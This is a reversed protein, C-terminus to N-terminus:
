AAKKFSFGRRRAIHVYRGRDTFRHEVAYGLSELVADAGQVLRHSPIGVILVGGERVCEGTHLLEALEAVERLDPILLVDAPAMEGVWRAHVYSARQYGHQGLWLMAAPGAVGSVHVLSNRTVGARALVRSLAPGDAALSRAPQSAHSNAAMSACLSLASARAVLLIALRRSGFAFM